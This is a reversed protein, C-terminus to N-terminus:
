LVPNSRFNVKRGGTYTFKPIPHRPTRHKSPM